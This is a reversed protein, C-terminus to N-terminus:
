RLLKTWECYLLFTDCWMNNPPPAHARITQVLTFHQVHKHVVLFM